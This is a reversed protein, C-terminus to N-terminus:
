KHEAIFQDIRRAALSAREHIDQSEEFRKGIGRPWENVYFLGSTEEETVGLLKSAEEPIRDCDPADFEMGKELLCTWGAICATTGCAPVTVEADYDYIFKGPESREIWEEMQLRNPEALIHEKVKRLLKVNLPM